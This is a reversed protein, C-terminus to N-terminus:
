KRSTKWGPNMCMVGTHFILRLRLDPVKDIFQKAITTAFLIRGRHTEHYIPVGSERSLAATMNIFQVNQDFSFFDKGAHCNIYLPKAKVAATVSAKFETLNSQFNPNGSGVLFAIKLNYKALAEFLEKQDNETSPWWLELGDYGAQKTKSCLENVSGAFGWNTGMIQLTYGPAAVAEIPTAFSDLQSALLTATALSSNRLFQRRNISM